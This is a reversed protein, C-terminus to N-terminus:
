RPAEREPDASPGDVVHAPRAGARPRSRGLRAIRRDEPDDEVTDDRTLQWSRYALALLFVTMGFSIVIATLVLAPPVPDSVTDDGTFSGILPALGARGGVILLLLNAGHSLLALGLIVRTLTRQLIMYVGTGYLVAVLAATFVTM